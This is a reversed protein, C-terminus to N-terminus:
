KARKNGRSSRSTSKPRPKSMQMHKGHLHAGHGGGAFDDPFVDILQKVLDVASAFSTNPIPHYHVQGDDAVGLHGTVPVGDVQIHYTTRIVIHHGKYTAERISESAEHQHRQIKKVRLANKRVYSAISKTTPRAISKRTSM